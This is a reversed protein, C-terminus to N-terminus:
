ALPKEVVRRIWEGQVYHELPQYNIKYHMKPSNKIWYGLYLWNLELRRAEQIEFLVAYSGLSRSAYHASPDFFSYVASLGQNFLDVVAVMLLKGDLRFEYFCTESWHSTLFQMYADPTPDDMGGGRHREAIYRCYLQFHESRYVPACARISLDSNKNYIRKQVRRLQFEWVPIRVSECALCHQCHPRYLHEGSRRFGQASLRNYLPQDKRLHPDLLLTTAQTGPIYSCEHPPTAYLNLPQHQLFPRM